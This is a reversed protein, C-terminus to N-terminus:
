RILHELKKDNTVVIKGDKIDILSESKFDSLTRILSETATGAISALEERTINILFPENRNTHYKKELSMLAGAVKKRLTNYAIGLLQQEKEVLNKALLNIFKKAVEQNSNILDEFDKKPIMAVETDEIAEATENYKAGELLTVYGLFDGTNYLGVVLDKGDEHTKYTKIKGSIVYFLYHPNNGERYLVQKKKITNTNSNDTLTELTQKSGAAVMLENLGKLDPSLTKKAIDIKKFRSEIANLLENGNFPKTIYDDAGMEMAARFDSRESKSTLFIFPINQTKPEKHLVHLVGYGDVGPMMIDSIILDPEHEIAVDIGAKGNEATLVKYQALLLIEELNERIIDNDEIVLITKM